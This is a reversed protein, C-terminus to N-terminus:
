VQDLVILSDDVEGEYHKDIISRAKEVDMDALDLFNPVHKMGTVIIRALEEYDDNHRADEIKNQLPEAPVSELRSLLTPLIDLNAFLVGQLAGEHHPQTRESDTVWDLIEERGPAGLQFGIERANKVWSKVGRGLDFYDREILKKVFEIDGDRLARNVPSLTLSVRDIFDFPVRDPDSQSGPRDWHNELLWTLADLDRDTLAEHTAEGLERPTFTGHAPFHKQIDAKNQEKDTQQTSM